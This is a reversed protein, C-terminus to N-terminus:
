DEGASPFKVKIRGWDSDVVRGAEFDFDVQELVVHGAGPPIIKLGAERELAAPNLVANSLSPVWFFFGTVLLVAFNFSLHTRMIEEGLSLNLKLFELVSM